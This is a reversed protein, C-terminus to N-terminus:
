TGGYLNAETRTAKRASIIRIVSDNKGRYCHIVILLRLGKSVGLVIFREEDQSHSIDVFYEAMDDDFVTAAEEFEIGHKKINAHYKDEDWIFRREQM